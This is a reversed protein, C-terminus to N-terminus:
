RSTGKGPVTGDCSLCIWHRDEPECSCPPAKHFHIISRVKGDEGLLHISEQKEAMKAFAAAPDAQFAAQTM